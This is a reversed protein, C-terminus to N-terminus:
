YVTCYLYISQLIESINDVPVLECFSHKFIGFPYDSPIFPLISLVIALLLVFCWVFLYLYLFLLGVLYFRTVEPSGYRYYTGAGSTVGTTNSKNCVRHYTM